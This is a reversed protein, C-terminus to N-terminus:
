RHAVVDADLVAAQVRELVARRQPRDDGLRRLALPADQVQAEEPGHGLGLEGLLAVLAMSTASITFGCAVLTESRTRRRTVAASATSCLTLTWRVPWGPCPPSSVRRATSSPASSTTTSPPSPVTLSTTLPRDPVDTGSPRAPPPLVLTNARPRPRGPSVVWAQSRRSSNSRAPVM